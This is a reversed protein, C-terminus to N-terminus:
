GRYLADLTTLYRQEVDRRRLKLSPTLDGEEVTLPRDIIEFKKITEWSGLRANLQRMCGEITARMEASGAIEAFTRGQMGAGAAWAAVADPDLAVLATVYNRGEGHVVLQAALPCVAKFQTEIGQPAVYKGGSTKILDKKRDTIRLSGNPTIEGIDGTRLWGDETLIEATAEPLNHYGLMVGPGRVLIEGDAALAVETGPMPRGVTGFESRGPRNVFTGASTETLGYGELVELGVAHFWEAVDKSLAASGSVFETIRGGFRDRIKALVLRDAIRHQVALLVGPELGRQRHRSVEAGVGVAWEFIKLKVGGQSRIASIVGAYVKEFIRPAAAMLTPRVVPLNDIIKKVDADIAAAHGTALQTSLLVKGFSHSLPLWLYGLDDPSAVEIARTALGEYVWSAHSLRVGKPRGTTGSTYILTALQEPRVAATAVTVAEPHDALYRSGLDRLRELSLVRDDDQAPQGDILILKELSTPAALAKALQGEDEVVAFRSGSDNLIFIVDGSPTTPYITTTAGGACMVALDAHIWELRTTSAIAVRDEPQLGLALLGAALDTVVARTEAWTSAAWGGAGDPRRYAEQDPTAAARRLFLAGLSAPADAMLRNLAAIEWDLARCRAVPEITTEATM